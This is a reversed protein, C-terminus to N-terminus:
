ATLSSTSRISKACTVATILAPAAAALISASPATGSDRILKLLLRVSDALPTLTSAWRVLDAQRQAPAFSQWAYYAPLDFECTGGPIGVRSRISM